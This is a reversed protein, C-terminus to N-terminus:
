QPSIPSAQPFITSDEDAVSDARPFELGLIASSVCGVHFLLPHLRVFGKSPVISLLSCYGEDLEEHIDPLAEPCTEKVTLPYGTYVLEPGAGSDAVDITADGIEDHVEPGVIVVTAGEDEIVLDEEAPHDTELLLQDQKVKL